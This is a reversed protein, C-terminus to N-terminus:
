KPADEFVWNVAKNKKIGFNDSFVLPGSGSGFSEENTNNANVLNNNSNEVDYFKMKSKNVGILFKRNKTTDNGRNKLQKVMLQGNQALEETEILAIFFDTTQPLGFSESTDTMEMDSSKAGERNVQTASWLPVNFQKALGRLEEAIGKVYTYSNMGNGMKFRACSCINLYDVIIIDPKFKKKIKLEEMLNRFHTVNAAATPYEKIILKGRCTKKLNNVKNEYMALPMKELVHIDTDLLNADIRKAIEEESMELTIYLVNLNQTLCAAAHHCLFASKGVGSAAMVVNLTKKRVGGGTILNFMELDFPVREEVRHYYEYREDVDEFFDHGVRTDFSVSLAKSMIEPIANQTQEKDKGEIIGISAMIGNYIAKEKCFKETHEVLWETDSKEGEKYMEDSIAVCKKFESDGLTKDDGLSILVADKTPINNYKLLFKSVINFVTREAKDQFYEEQLFPVVKRSYDENLVLNKLIVTEM